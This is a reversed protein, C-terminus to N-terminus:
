RLWMPTGELADYEELPKKKDRAFGPLDSIVTRVPEYSYGPYSKFAEYNLKASEVCYAFSAFYKQFVDALTPLQHNLWSKKGEAEIVASWDVSSATSNKAFIQQVNEMLESARDLDEM